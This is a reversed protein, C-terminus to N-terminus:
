LLRSSKSSSATDWSEVASHDPGEEQRPVAACQEGSRKGSNYMAHHTARGSSLFNQEAKCSTRCAQALPGFQEYSESLRTGQVAQTARAQCSSGRRSESQISLAWHPPGSSSARMPPTAYYTSM